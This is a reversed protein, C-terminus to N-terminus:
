IEEDEMTRLIIFSVANRGIINNLNYSTSRKGKEPKDLEEKKKRYNEQTKKMKRYNDMQHDKLDMGKKKM